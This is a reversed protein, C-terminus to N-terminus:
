SDFSKNLQEALDEALEDVMSREVVVLEYNKSGAHELRSLQEESVRAGALDTKHFMAGTVNSHALRAKRLDAFAFTAEQLEAGTMSADSLDTGVFNARRLDASNFSAGALKAGRFNALQLEALVFNAGPARAGRLSARRLNASTLDAFRLDASDLVADTLDAGNLLAGCLNAELLDAGSLCAARLDVAIRKGEAGVWEPTGWVSDLLITAAIQIDAAPPASQPAALWKDLDFAPAERQAQSVPPLPSRTRVYAAITRSVTARHSRSEQAVDWLAFLGTIRTIEQGSGLLEAATKYRLAIASQRAIEIDDRKNQQDDRRKRDRWLWTLLVAPGAVISSLLLWPPDKALASCFGPSVVVDPVLTM